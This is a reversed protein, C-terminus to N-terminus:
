QMWVTTRTIVTEAHPFFFDKPLVHSNKKEMMLSALNVWLRILLTPPLPVRAAFAWCAYYAQKEKKRILALGM